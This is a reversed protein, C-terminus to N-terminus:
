DPQTTRLEAIRGQADHRITTVKPGRAKKPAPPAAPAPSNAAKGSGLSHLLDSAIRERELALKQEELSVQVGYKAQLEAARLTIDAEAKDREREDVLHMEERRLALELQRNQSDSVLEGQAQMLKLRETALDAQDQAVKAQVKAMEAQALLLNPDPQPPQEPPKWDAPVDNYFKSTDQFGKLELMKARTYRYQAVTVLPNAPGFTTLINLQDQATAALVALKEETLGSGLAVNVSVDMQADWARPDVPVFQNRLRVIRQRPQHEVLLKLLGKFLQKVGTEAFIRAILELQDNAANVTAKVAGATTSQLADPDLTAPLPGVRQQKVRDLYDLLNLAEQAAPQHKFEMVAASPQLGDRVAVIKGMATSEMQQRDVAGEMYYTDSFLTQALSDAAARLVSSKMKQLDMTRDALSGGILVHPEPDPCLLAFPREDVPEPDGVLHQDTGLCRCRVLEAVGDGDIDLYPYAEMWLNKTGSEMPSKDSGALGGRRTIEEISQRIDSAPGGYSDIEDEPVGMALLESKTKETRHAMFTAQERNRADRSILLEEPPVCGIMAIGERRWHRYELDRYVIGAESRESEKTVEVDPDRLLAEYQNVDLNKATYDKYVSSDEWWYKMVGLGGILADKFWGLFEQFGNNDQQLVVGNVFETAQEAEAVVQAIMDPTKPRPQYEVVREGGFFVRLLSPLIALITDRTDTLIVQSRGTEEAGPANSGDLKGFPQGQYYGIAKARAPSLESQLYTTADSTYQSLADQIAERSMRERKKSM